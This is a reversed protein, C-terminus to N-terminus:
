PGVIKGLALMQSSIQLGCQRAAEPNIEFRVKEGSLYFDIDGGEDAFSPIDSVTLIQRAKLEALIGPLEGEESRSVFIMQCGALDELQSSRLIVFRRGNISEGQVTADLSSGFPDDGLIGICFPAQPGAFASSPWKVFQVFNYLFAAKIQYERSEASQAYVRPSVFLGLALFAVPLFSRFKRPRPFFGSKTLLAM